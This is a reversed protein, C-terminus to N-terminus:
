TRKAIDRVNPVTGATNYIMYANRSWNDTAELLDDLPHLLKKAYFWDYKEAELFIPLLNSTQKCIYYIGSKSVNKIPMFEFRGLAVDIMSRVYDFDTSLSTLTSSIAEGGGRPNIEILAIEGNDTVKMEIHTAGNAFGMASLIKPAVVRIADQISEPLTSPQHHALEVFHIPGSTVKDTIQVVKHRGKYSISEVSIERGEVYEELLMSANMSSAHELAAQLSPISDVFSVGRKGSGSIPKMVSPYFANTGNYVECRVSRLGNISNTRERVLHKDQCNRIVESPTGILGLKEAIQASIEALLESGNSVVGNVGEDRCIDVIRDVETVSIAYYRGILEDSVVGKDWSFSVVSLGLEQAKKYLALQGSSTGIIAIKM